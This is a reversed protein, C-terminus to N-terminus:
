KPPQYAVLLVLPLFRKAAKVVRNQRCHLVLPLKQPILYQVALENPLLPTSILNEVVEPILQFAQKLVRFSCFSCFLGFVRDAVTIKNGCHCSKRRKTNEGEL